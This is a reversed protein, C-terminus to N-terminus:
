VQVVQSLLVYQAYRLTSVGLHLSLSSQVSMSNIGSSIQICLCLELNDPKKLNWHTYLLMVSYHERWLSLHVTQLRFPAMGLISNEGIDLSMRVSLLLVIPPHAM